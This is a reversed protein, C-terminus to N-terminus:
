RAPETRDAPDAPDAPEVPLGDRMRELASVVVREGVEVGSVIEVRDETRIGTTVSRAVARGDEYVFVKRGGLEPIVALAPVTLADPVERIAVEVDAFTGPVLRADPNAAEARLTISRTERDVAPEVARVTAEREEAGRVRFRVRDGPGLVGVYAEPVTFDLEIPDLDQLTTITTQPTLYAGPSVRRLGAVGSFPARITTKDLQTEVLRLESELVNRQSRTEDYQDESVVGEAYLEDLRSERQRALDLRYRARDREAELRARDLVVLVDGASVRSGERFRIEEVVGAIEAVIEVREAARLTGTTILRESLPAPALTVLEVPLARPAADSRDSAETPSGDSCGALPAALLALLAPLLVLRTPNPM